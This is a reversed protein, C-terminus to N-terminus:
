SAYRLNLKTLLMGQNTISVWPEFNVFDKYRKIAINHALVDLTYLGKVKLKKKAKLFAQM